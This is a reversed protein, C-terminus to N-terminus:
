VGVLQQETRISSEVPDRDAEVAVIKTQIAQQLASPAVIHRSQAWATSSVSVMAVVFLSLAFRQIRNQFM